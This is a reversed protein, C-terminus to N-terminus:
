SLRCLACSMVHQSSSMQLPIWDLHTARHPMSKSTHLTIHFHKKYQTKLESRHDLLRRLAKVKTGAQYQSKANPQRSERMRDDLMKLGM